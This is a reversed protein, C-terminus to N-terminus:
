ATSTNDTAIDPLFADGAIMTTKVDKHGFLEQVTRIDYGQELLHTAFCHRFTHPSVPKTIKAQKAAQRVAKQLGSEDVHHRRTVGSRPDVSLKNAPFVWQWGWEVNANPYKEALAYPLYVRGYGQALDNQDM